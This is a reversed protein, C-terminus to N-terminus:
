ELPILMPSKNPKLLRIFRGHHKLVVGRPLALWSWVTM